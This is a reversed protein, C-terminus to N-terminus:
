EQAQKYFTHPFERAHELLKHMPLSFKVQSIRNDPNDTLLGAFRHHGDLLRSKGDSETSTLVRKRLHDLNDADLLAAVKDPNMERQTPLLDKVAVESEQSTVGRKKMFDIFSPVHQSEIQPMHQRPIGLSEKFEAAVGPQVWRTVVHNNKDIRKQQVLHTNIRLAKRLDKKSVLGTNALEECVSEFFLAGYSNAQETAAKQLQCAAYLDALFQEEYLAFRQQTTHQLPSPDGGKQLEDTLAKTLALHEAETEAFEEHLEAVRQDAAAVLSKRLEWEQRISELGASEHPPPSAPVYRGKGGLLQHLKQLTNEFLVFGKKVEGGAKGKFQDYLQPHYVGQSDLVRIPEKGLAVNNDYLIAEDVKGKIAEFTTACGAHGHALIAEPVYRGNGPKNGGEEM